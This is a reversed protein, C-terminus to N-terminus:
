QNRSESGSSVGGGCVGCDNDRKLGIRPGVAVGGARWTMAM